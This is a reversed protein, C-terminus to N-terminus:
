REKREVQGNLRRRLTKSWGPSTIKRKPKRWTGDHKKGTRVAKRVTRIDAPTNEPKADCSKHAPFVKDDRDEEMLGLPPFHHYVVGGAPPPPVPEGCRYFCVGQERAWIRRKRALTMARRKAM